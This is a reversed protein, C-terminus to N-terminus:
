RQTRLADIYEQRAAISNHGSNAIVTLHAIGPAFRKLLQETSARPIVEDAGAAILETPAKVQPAYRWSEYKDTLLWHVPLYPFQRAAVDEVSDYPTVLLLRAVPRESAVKVALGSGLSRGLVTVKPHMAQVLDFLALADRQLGAETAVGASGGYGRYHLLYLAYGPFAVDMDSLSKSVDEANGGFYVLAPAGLLPRVSVLVPGVDSSLVLQPAGSSRPHPHYILSRQFAFVAACLILYAVALMAAVTTAKQLLSRKAPM